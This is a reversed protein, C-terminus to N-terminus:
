LDEDHANSTKPDGHANSAWVPDFEHQKDYASLMADYVQRLLYACTGPDGEAGVTCKPFFSRLRQMATRGRLKGVSKWSQFDFLYQRYGQEYSGEHMHEM